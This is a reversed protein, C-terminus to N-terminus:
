SGALDLQDADHVDIYARDDELRVTGVFRVTKTKYFEAANDIGRKAKLDAIGKESIAVGLNNPDRFDTLSDLFVTKRHVSNKSAKVEFVVEVRKGVHHKAAESPVRPPKDEARSLAASLVLIALLPAFRLAHGIHMMMGIAHGVLVQNAIPVCRSNSPVVETRSKESIPPAHM